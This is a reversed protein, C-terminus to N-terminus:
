DTAAPLFPEGYIYIYGATAAFVSVNLLLLLLVPMQFHFEGFKAQFLCSKFCPRYSESFIMMMMMMLLLLLSM